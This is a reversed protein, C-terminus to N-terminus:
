FSPAIAQTFWSPEGIRVHAHRDVRADGRTGVDAIAANIARHNRRGLAPGSGLVNREDDGLTPDYVNGLSVPRIPLIWDGFTCLTFM